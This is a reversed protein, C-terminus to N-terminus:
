RWKFWQGDHPDEVDGLTDYSAVSHPPGESSVPFVSARHWQLHPVIFIGGQKFARLMSCPGLNQLGEGATTVDGYLQFIRSRSMLGCIILWDCVVATACKSPTRCGGGWRQWLKGDFTLLLNWIWIWKQFGLTVWNCRINSPFLSIIALQSM